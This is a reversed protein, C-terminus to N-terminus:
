ANSQDCGGQPHVEGAFNGAATLAEDLRPSGIGGGAGTKEPDSTAFDAM